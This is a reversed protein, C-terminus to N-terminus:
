RDHQRLISPHLDRASASNLTGTILIASYSSFSEAATLVPYNQLDNPGGHNGGPSNQTPSTSFGLNIGLMGNNYISNSLIEDGTCDDYDSVGINVGPRTKNNAIVNGAGSATGGITNYSAGNFASIGGGGNGLPETGNAGVGILNGEVLNDSTYVIDVGDSGNGSIVNGAGAATGGITNSNSFVDIGGVYYYSLFGNPVSSDGSSNTGILNGQLLNGGDDLIVGGWTNGSIVNGAGAQTGGITNGSCQVLIGQYNPIAADGAANTGILNGQILNDGNGSLYIGCSGSVTSNNGSILNGAGPQAGGITNFQANDSLGIGQHGNPLAATGDANTGIENGEILNDQGGQVPAGLSVEDVIDIGDNINGSIVNGAGQSTGGITNGPTGVLVGPGLFSGPDSTDVTANPLATTGSADTGIFNGDVLVGGGSSGSIIVGENYSGSIVNGAGQATGGLTNGAGFSYFSVGQYNGLSQTGTADTGIYNGEILNDGSSSGTVWVGYTLFGTAGNSIINRDAPTTGGITNNSIDDIEVGTGGGSTSVVQEGTVDTGLFCGTVTDGGYTSQTEGTSTYNIGNLAIDDNCDNIALGEVTSSGGSILLGYGSADLVIQLVANDGQALTNPSAGPQTYGDIIVPNAVGTYGPAQMTFPGTGPIDFAIIDPSTALDTTDANVQGIAWNLSGTSGDNVPDTVTFTQSLLQRDELRVLPNPILKMQRRRRDRSRRRIRAKISDRQRGFQELLSM